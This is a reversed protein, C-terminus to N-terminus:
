EEACIIKPELFYIIDTPTRHICAITQILVLAHISKLRDHISQLFLPEIQYKFVLLPNLKSKLGFIQLLCRLFDVQRFVGNATHAIGPLTLIAVGNHKTVTAVNCHM